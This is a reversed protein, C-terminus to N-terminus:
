NIESLKQLEDESFLKRLNKDQEVVDFYIQKIKIFERETKFEYGYNACFDDFDNCYNLDLCALVSYFDLTASKNKETNNISDYFNFSYSGKKNTLTVSYMNVAQKGWSPMSQGIKVISCTTETELLFNVAQEQYSSSLLKQCTAPSLYRHNNPLVKNIKEEPSMTELNLM